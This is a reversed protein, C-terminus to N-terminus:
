IALVHQLYSIQRIIYLTNRLSVFYAQKGFLYTGKIELNACFWFFEEISVQFPFELRFEKELNLKQVILDFNLSKPLINKPKELERIM